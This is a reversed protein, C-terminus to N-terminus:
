SAANQYPSVGEHCMCTPATHVTSVLLAGSKENSRTRSSSM